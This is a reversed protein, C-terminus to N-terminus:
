ESISEFFSSDDFVGNENLFERASKLKVLEKKTEPHGDMKQSM